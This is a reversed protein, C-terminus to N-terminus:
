STSTTDTPYQGRTAVIADDILQATEDESYPSPPLEHLLKRLKRAGEVRRAKAPAISVIPQHHEDEYVLYDGDKELQAVLEKVAEPAEDFPQRKEM